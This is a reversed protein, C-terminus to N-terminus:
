IISNDYVFTGTYLTNYIHTEEYSIWTDEMGIEEGNYTVSVGPLLLLMVSIAQAINEDFRSVLRRRDHNGAVWNATCGAPMNNMWTDIINKYESANSDKGLNEILFFNFPFHSGYDYYKMILEPSAYAETMMVSTVGNAADYADIVDRWQQVMEYNEHQNTTYIHDFYAYNDSDNTNGSLPEDLYSTNEFLHPIADVRFGNVGKDLWFVLVDKMEQVLKENHFNLDPQASDFQHLYYAQREDRWTWAPGGFVSLWNNPKAMTGNSLKKGPHWVYFDNYPAINKLSKQFWEHQDSTHNPVYDMIVKLSLKQATKILNEFDEMTGFMPDVGKFDSIDYGFDIMPSPYTPSIWFADVGLNVLHPLKEEIGKLDGVGDGDSDKFSRPYIQYLSMSQWWELCNVPIGAFTLLGLTFLLKM